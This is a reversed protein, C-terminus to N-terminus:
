QAIRRFITIPVHTPDGDPQLGIGMSIVGNQLFPANTDYDYIYSLSGDDISMVKKNNDAPDFAEITYYAVTGPVLPAPDPFQIFESFKDKRIGNLKKNPLSIRTGAFDYFSLEINIIDPLKPDLTVFRVLMSDASPKATPDDFLAATGTYLFTPLKFTKSPKIDVMTDAIIKNIEPNFLTIRRKGAQIPKDGVDTSSATLTDVTVNDIQVFLFESAGASFTSEINLVGFESESFDKGKQCSFFTIIILFICPLYFKIKM